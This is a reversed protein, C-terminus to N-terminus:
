RLPGLEDSLRRLVPLSRHCFAGLVITGCATVAGAFLGSLVTDGLVLVDDRRRLVGLLMAAVFLATYFVVAFRVFCDKMWEPYPFAQVLM